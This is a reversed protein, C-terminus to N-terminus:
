DQRLAQVPNTRAARRAPLYSALLGVAGLIAITATFVLRDTGSIGYLLANLTRSLLLALVLGAGLGMATLEVGKRVIMGVIDGREAGLAIRIGMEATRQTVSYSMVGYVGISTLLLAFLAFIMLVTWSFRARALSKAIWQDMSRVDSVPQDPDLGQIVGQVARAFSLPDGTTRVTLTMASYPLQVQPWYAMPRTPTEMDAHRVDGVVGVVTTPVNPDKMHIVLRKGLPDEGPFYQRVMAENVIVVDAVQQMERPEFLRGKILPIKMTRFYGNDCVRVETTLDQGPPPAPRGEVTFNTAAAMGAFPLFSIAGAARVGPIASVREVAQQFFRLVQDDQQYKQGPLAVRMTLVNQADFGPDVSRLKAFSRILLGAGVLLVLALAVEAVVLGESWRQPSGAFSSRGGAKLADNLNIKSTSWAPLWGCLVGTALSMALSFTLVSGNIGAEQLRPLDPPSLAVVADLGWFALWVGLFGGCFALTLGEILLQRILRWHSAGIAARVAL